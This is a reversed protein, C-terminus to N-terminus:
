NTLGFSIKIAEEVREQTDSTIECLKKMLRKKDISRIQNLLVVSDKNLGGESSKIFVETPYLSNLDFQSTIAAVIM